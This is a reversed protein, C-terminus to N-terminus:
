SPMPAGAGILRKAIEAGSYFIQLGGQPKIGQMIRRQHKKLIKHEVVGYGTESVTQQALLKSNEYAARAVAEAVNIIQEGHCKGFYESAWKARSLQM